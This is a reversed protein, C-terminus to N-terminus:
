EAAEIKELARISSNIYEMQGKDDMNKNITFYKRAEEPNSCKLYSVALLHNLQARDPDMAFCKLFYSIADEYKRAVYSIRGYNFNLDYESIISEDLKRRESIRDLCEITKEYYNFRDFISGKVLLAVNTPRYKEIIDSTILAEGLMGANNFRVSLFEFYGIKEEETKGEIELARSAQQLWFDKNKGETDSEQKDIFQQFYPAYDKGLLFATFGLDLLSGSEDPDLESKHRYLGYATEFDETLLSTLIYNDLNISDNRDLEFVEKFANLARDIEGKRFYVAGIDSRAEMRDPFEAVMRRYLKLAEDLYEGQMLKKGLDLLYDPTHDGDKLNEIFLDIVKFYNDFEEMSVYDNLLNFYANRYGKDMEIIRYYLSEAKSYEERDYTYTENFVKGIDEAGKMRYTGSEGEKIGMAGLNVNLRYKRAMNRYVCALSCVAEPNDPYKQVNEKAKKEAEEMKGALILEDVAKHIRTQSFSAPLATFLFGILFANRFIKM